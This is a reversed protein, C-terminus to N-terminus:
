LAGRYNHAFILPPIISPGRISGLALVIQRMMMRMTQKDGYISVLWIGNIFPRPGVVVVLCSLVVWWTWPLGLTKTFIILNTTNINEHKLPSGVVPVVPLCLSIILPRRRSQCTGPTQISLQPIYRHTDPSTHPTLSLRVFPRFNMSEVPHTALWSSKTM